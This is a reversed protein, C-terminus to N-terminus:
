DKIFLKTISPAQNTPFVFWQQLTEDWTHILGTEEIEKVTCISLTEKGNRYRNVVIECGVQGKFKGEVIADPLLNTKFGRKLKKTDIKELKKKEPKSTLQKREITM